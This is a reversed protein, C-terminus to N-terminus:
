DDDDDKRHPNAANTMELQEAYHLFRIDWYAREAETAKSLHALFRVINNPHKQPATM